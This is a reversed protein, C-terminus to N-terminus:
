KNALKTELDKVKQSLEQIAKIMPAILETYGISQLSDPNNKDELCWGGFDLDEPLAAKIEQALFGFHTRVGPQPTVVQEYIPREETTAPVEPILINGEEDLVAPREPISIIETGVQVSEVINRGEIWRYQVPKLQEIFGLGLSSPAVDTKLRQDSVNLANQSYITSWRLSASGFEYANNVSPTTTGGISGGAETFVKSTSGNIYAGTSDIQLRTAGAAGILVTNSLNTSGALAGIITNSGGTTIATGASTGIAINNSSTNNILAAFGIAVNNNGGVNNLLTQMGLATNLAGSTTNAISNFGVATNYSTNVNQLAGHGVATNATASTSVSLANSGVATNFQNTNSTLAQYGVATNYGLSATNATLTLYGVATNYSGATNNLMAHYGIATNASGTTNGSLSRHGVATNFGGNTNAALASAGIAVLNSTTNGTSFLANPGIAINYSTNTSGYLAQYGLATNNNSTNYQLSGQGVATNFSGVSASQMSSTGIATNNSGSTNSGLAAQGLATNYSGNTNNQLAVYGIGTNSIGSTNKEMANNGLAINNNGSTNLGLTSYGVAANNSGTTNSYLAGSGIAVLNSATNGASYLASSGIAINNSTNTSGYLAQYGISVNNTGIILLNSSNSGLATNQGGTTVAQLAGAGVATNNAASTHAFMANNGVAVNSLGGITSSAMGNGIRINASNNLAGTGISVGEVVIDNTFSAGGAVELKATPNTAGIGVNGNALVRLRETANTEIIMDTNAQNSIFVSGSSDNSNNKGILFPTSTSNNAYFGMVSQFGSSVGTNSIRLMPAFSAVQGRIELLSAPNTAGIGVNGTSDIRMVEVGGEAFAITDAAPFFIGTNSDGTPIISPASVAGPSFGAQGTFAPNAFMTAKSENTVNGLGVATSNLTQWSKDGRWYQATTGATIVPERSTDTPHKHDARSYLTSTGASATGAMTPSASSADGTSVIRYWLMNDTGIVNGTKFNNSFLYGGNITGGDVNVTAGDVEATGDADAARTWSTSSGYTYIGNLTAGTQDKVLIRDGVNLAIGDLITIGTTLTLTSATSSSIVINQTTGAVVSKKFASSPVYTMDLTVWSPAFTGNASLVQKSTGAAVFSTSSAQVQYPIQGQGGGSLNTASGASTASTATTATTATTANGSLSATITGASFNGTNDRYVITNASNAFTANSTITITQNGSQNLTFTAGGSIGPGSTSIGISSDRVPVINTIDSAIVPTYSSVRGYADINVKAFTASGSATGVTALGIDDTGVAIGTGAGINLTNGSKSLGAGATILGTGTFQVFNINTSGPTITGNNSIIWGTDANTTGEEVFVFLGPTLNISSNADDSRSWTSANAIYIGNTTQTSQDKILVRDGAVVTIGDITLLGSLTAINATSAVRVSQRADVKWISSDVYQKTAAHLPNTPDGSLTLGATMIVSGDSKISSTIGFEINNLNAASLPTVGNNQWSTPNYPM